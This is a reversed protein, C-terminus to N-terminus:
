LSQGALSVVFGFHITIKRNHESYYPQRGSRIIFGLLSWCGDLGITGFVYLVRRLRYLHIFAQCLTSYEYLMM